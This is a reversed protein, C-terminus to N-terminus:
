DDLTNPDMPHLSDYRVKWAPIWPVELQMPATPEQALDFTDSFDYATADEPSLPALGLTHETFALLSAQSSITHDVFTAPTYASVILLPLRVGLNPPPPVHDYFCGCDDFTVFIATSDWEPGSMVANVNTAIWADARSMFRGNHGSDEIHPTVISLAPLRGAMADTAFEYPDVWHSRQSGYFCEGFTPCISWGYGGARSPAYLKYALQAQDMRNFISPVWPVPSPGYPGQGDPAPVCNFANDTFPMTDLAAAWWVGANGTDCGWGRAGGGEPHYFAHHNGTHFGDLHSAVLELHSGWSGVSDLEFFRDSIAFSRALTAITPIKGPYYQTYCEYGTDVSCKGFQENPWGNMAGGNIAAVQDVYDHGAQVVFDSAKTLPIQSNDPLYGVTAGDCGGYLECYRGFMNDFSHNEEYIIVVHKIPSGSPPFPPLPQWSPLTDNGPDHTLDADVLVQNPSGNPMSREFVELDGTRDSQYAIRRGLDPAFVPKTDSAPDNTLNVAGTGDANMVYIEDNGDRDSTFAITAQDPSWAPQSDSAPDNTLNVAGTGDANMVYIEDNGDRKSTFAIRNGNPSWAPQTDSGTSQTLRSQGSGDANMVYIETNGDRDSTFAIRTGDPSWAPQTDLGPAQSVNEQLAGDFNMTYIEGNGDRTSVFAIRGNGIANPSARAGGAAGAIPVSLSAVLAFGALLSARRGSRFIM